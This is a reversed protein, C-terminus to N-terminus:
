DPQSLDTTEVRKLWAWRRHTTVRSAEWDCPAPMRKRRGGARNIRPHTGPPLPKGISFEQPLCCMLDPRELDLMAVLWHRMFSYLWDRPANGRGRMLKHFHANRAYCREAKADLWIAYREPLDVDLYGSVENCVTEAILWPMLETDRELGPRLTERFEKWMSQQAKSKARAKTPKVRKAKM